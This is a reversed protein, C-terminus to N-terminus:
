RLRPLAVDGVLARVLILILVVVVAIVILNKIPAPMPIYTTLLYVLVGLVTALVIFEILGM